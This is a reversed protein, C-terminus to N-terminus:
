FSNHITRPIDTFGGPTSRNSPIDTFGEPNSRDGLSSEINNDNEVVNDFHGGTGVEDDPIEESNRDVSLALELMRSRESKQASLKKKRLVRKPSQEKPTHLSEGKKTPSKRRKPTAGQKKPTAGQKRNM